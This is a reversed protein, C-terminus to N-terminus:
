VMITRWPSFSKLLILPPRPGKIGGGAGGNKMNGRFEALSSAKIESKLQMVRAESKKEFVDVNAKDRLQPHHHNQNHLRSRPTM